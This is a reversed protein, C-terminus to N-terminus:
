PVPLWWDLHIATKTAVTWTSLLFSVSCMPQFSLWSNEADMHPYRNLSMLLFTDKDNELILNSIPSCLRPRSIWQPLGSALFMPRQGWLSFWWWIIASPNPQDDTARKTILVSSLFAWQSPQRLLEGPPAHVRHISGWTKVSFNFRYLWIAAPKRLTHMDAEDESISGHPSSHQPLLASQLCM